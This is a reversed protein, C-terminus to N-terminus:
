IIMQKPLKPRLPILVAAIFIEAGLWALRLGLAAILARNTGLYPTLTHGVVWERVGLGGPAVAIVFGAVTSLAVAATGIPWLNFAINPMDELFSIGKLIAALSAGLFAWSITSLVMGELLLMWTIRPIASEGVSEKFPFTVLRAIKPFVWPTTLIFFGIGPALAILDIPASTKWGKVFAIPLASRGNGAFVIAALMGGTAMFVLTEYLTAFGASVARAGYPVVLGARVVVVLAKGPVYKALHSILYARLAPLYGVPTPSNKLVRGFFLGSFCLGALYAAISAAVWIPDFTPRNGKALMNSAADAIQKGVAALVIVALAAKLLGKATRSWPKAVRANGGARKNKRHDVM